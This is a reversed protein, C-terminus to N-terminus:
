LGAKEKRYKLYEQDSGTILITRQCWALSNFYMFWEENVVVGCAETAHIIQAVRAIEQDIEKRTM